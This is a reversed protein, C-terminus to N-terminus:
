SLGLLERAEAQGAASKGFESATVRDLAAMLNGPSADRDRAVQWAGIILCAFVNRGKSVQALNRWANASDSAHLGISDGHVSGAPKLRDEWQPIRGRDRLVLQSAALSIAEGIVAPEFGEALASAAARASDSPSATSFTTSLQEVFADEASKTGPERGALKFEDLLSVLMKGHEDWEARRSPEARVCYRLSQRLLTLAHETGVIEQMDWARYPLVTRHVEPNDQILPLLADLGSLRDNSVLASM